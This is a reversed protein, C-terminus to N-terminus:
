REETAFQNVLYELSAKYYEWVKETMAYQPILSLKKLVHCATKLKITEESTHSSNVLVRFPSRRQQLYLDVSSVLPM